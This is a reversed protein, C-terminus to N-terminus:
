TPDFLQGDLPELNRWKVASLREVGDAHISKIM